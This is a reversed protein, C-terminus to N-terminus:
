DAVACDCAAGAGAKAGRRMAVPSCVVDLKKLRAQDRKFVSGNKVCEALCALNAALEVSRAKKPPLAYIM